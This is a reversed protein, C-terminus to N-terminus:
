NKILYQAAPILERRGVQRALRETPNSLVTEGEADNRASTVVYKSVYTFRAALIRRDWITAHGSKRSSNGQHSSMEALPLPATCRRLQSSPSLPSLVTTQSPFYKNGSTTSGVQSCKLLENVRQPRYMDERPRSISVYQPVEALHAQHVRACGKETPQKKRKGSRRAQPV